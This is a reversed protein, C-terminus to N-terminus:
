SIIDFFSLLEKKRDRSIPIEIDGLKVTNNGPRFKEVHETNIIYSRHCRFFMRSNLISLLETLTIKNVFKEETTFITCYGEDATVYVIEESPVKKFQNGKRIFLSNSRQQNKDKTVPTILHDQKIQDAISLLTFKKLPKIGFFCNGILKSAEYYDLREFATMIIMALGLHEIDKALQLFVKLNLDNPM